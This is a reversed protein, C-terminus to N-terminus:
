RRASNTRTAPFEDDTYDWTGDWREIQGTASQAAVDVPRMLRLNHAAQLFINVMHLYRCAIIQFEPTLYGRRWLIAPYNM